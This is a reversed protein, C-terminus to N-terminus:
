WADRARELKPAKPQGAGVAVAAVGLPCLALIALWFAYVPRVASLLACPLLWVVNIVTVSVTVTAHGVRRALHQYAHTRHALTIRDGRLMRRILTVTSDMVFVGALILWTWLASPNRADDSLALVGIIFGLYGSGVDGMFIKAPPWNWIIFGISAAGVAAAAGAIGIPGISQAAFLLTAGCIFITESAAIGDIGDMFNFINLFWVIGLASIAYGAVGLRVAETGVRLEGVHGVCAVAWAAAVFHVLLRKSPSLSGHDDLFGVAAVAIGGGCLALTLHIPIVGCGTLLGVAIVSSIVIALGGGRPVPESHSSRDNPVDILGTSLAIRRLMATLILSTVFAGFSLVYEWISV